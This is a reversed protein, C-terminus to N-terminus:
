GVILSHGITNLTIELQNRSVVQEAGALPPSAWTPRLAAAV